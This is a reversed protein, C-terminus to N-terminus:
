TYLTLMARRTQTPYYLRFEGKSRCFSLTTSGSYDGEISKIRATIALGHPSSAAQYRYRALPQTVSWQLQKIADWELRRGDQQMYEHPIFETNYIKRLSISIEVSACNPLRPNSHKNWRILHLIWQYLHCGDGM